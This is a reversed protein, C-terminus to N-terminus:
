VRPKRKKMSVMVFAIGLLVLVLGIITGILLGGAPTAPAVPTQSATISVSSHPNDDPTPLTVEPNAPPVGDQPYQAYPNRYTTAKTVVQITKYVHLTGSGSSVNLTLKYTGPTSYTHSISVGLATSGDGFDWSYSLPAATYNPDFGAQANLSINQNVQTQGIDSITAIPAGGASAQGLIDPQKLMWTTLMGPIALALVLAQAKKSSGSAFTNMLQITDQKQDFPYSWAPPNRDYYTSNGAFTACPLGALTFPIQDSGGLKDDELHMNNMQESSFVPQAVDQNDDGHYTITGFGLAQFQAFVAPVAQQMLNRFHTIKQKQQQSLREQNPYLQSNLLPSLEVYFPLLPNAMKGLYRLPYAIGNQEENFMAVINNVDGNITSNLYHFSGYLGQEEADFLVFRLTRAPYVHHSRWYEGMAKAVGLEIACGSADDNASQTSIAEGDYHCGIVVVQEPHSVGPVSVEVNFAPVTAPRGQWGDVKFNDRLVQLGFGVLNKQMEQSWYAAFEDHGNINVPLNKDYGAERHQFSTAMYFLQNYIYDPDVTPFDALASGQTQLGVNRAQAYASMPVLFSIILLILGCISTIRGQM